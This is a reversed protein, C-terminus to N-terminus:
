PLVPLEEQIDYPRGKAARLKGAAAAFSETSFSGLGFGAGEDAGKPPM